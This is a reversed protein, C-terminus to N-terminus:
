SYKIKLENGDSIFTINNKKDTRLTYINRKNLKEIIDKSPHGYM